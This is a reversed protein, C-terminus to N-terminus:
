TAPELGAAPVLLILPNRTLRTRGRKNKATMYASHLWIAETETLALSQRTVVGPAM